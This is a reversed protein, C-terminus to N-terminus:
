ALAEQELLLRRILELRREVTRTVCGLRAAIEANTAGDMKWQAVARLEEMPLADLWRRAEEAVEALFSPSPTDGMVNEIGALDDSDLLNLWASEGQVMGGGRKRRTEHRRADIVKRATIVVLLPWLNGRDSLQPFCGAAAGRCFSNIASLAIDEEDAVRRPLTGMRARALHVLAGFYRDWFPQAADHDGAKLQAIWLTVSHDSSM